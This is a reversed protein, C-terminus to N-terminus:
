ISINLKLIKKIENQLEDVNGYKNILMNKHENFTKNFHLIELFMIENTLKLYSGYSQLDLKDIQLFKHNGFNNTNINSIIRIITDYENCLYYLSYLSNMINCNYIENYKYIHSYSQQSEPNHIYFNQLLNNYKEIKKNDNIDVRIIQSSEIHTYPQTKYKETLYNNIINLEDLLITYDYKINNINFFIYNVTLLYNILIKCMYINM